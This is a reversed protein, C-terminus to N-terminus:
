HATVQVHTPTHYAGALSVDNQLCLTGTQLLLPPESLTCKNACIVDSLNTCSGGLFFSVETIPLSMLM